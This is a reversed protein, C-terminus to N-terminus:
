AARPADLLRQLRPVLSVLRGEYPKGRTLLGYRAMGEAHLAVGAGPPSAIAEAVFPTRGAVSHATDSAARLILESREGGTGDYAASQRHRSRPGLQRM